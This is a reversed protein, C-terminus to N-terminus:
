SGFNFLRKFFSKKKISPEPSIQTYTFSTKSNLVDVIKQDNIENNDYTVTAVKKDFDVNTDKIGKTDQLATKVKNCCSVSCRLGDIKYKTVSDEAFILTMSVVMMMIINKM